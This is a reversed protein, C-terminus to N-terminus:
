ARAPELARVSLCVYVGCPKRELGHQKRHPERRKRELGYGGGGASIPPYPGSAVRRCLAVNELKQSFFGRFDWGIEYLCWPLATIYGLWMNEFRIKKESVDARNSSLLWLRNARVAGDSGFAYRSVEMGM